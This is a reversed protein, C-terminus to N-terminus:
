WWCLHRGKGELAEPLEELVDCTSVQIVHSTLSYLMIWVVHSTWEVHHEAMCKGDNKVNM